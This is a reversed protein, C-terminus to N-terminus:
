NSGQRYPRLARFSALLNESLTAMSTNGTARALVLAQEAKAIAEAFRGTEAYAAAATSLVTPSQEAGATALTREALRVAEKGNRVAADPYTALLWALDSMIFPSDSAISITEQLAPSGNESDALGIVAALLKARPNEWGPRLIMAYAFQNAATQFDQRRGAAVGLAYHAQPSFPIVILANRAADTMEQDRQLSILESLLLACAVANEPGFDLARRASQIAPEVEGQRSLVISLQLHAASDRPALEVARKAETLAAPEDKADGCILSLCRHTDANEPDAEVARMAESKANELDRRFRLWTAKYVHLPASDRVWMSSFSNAAWLFMAVGLLLQLRPWRGALASWGLSAFCCLPILASLGYVSRAQGSSPIKLTMFVIGGLVLASFGLLVFWPLSPRQVYDHLAIVLGVVILLTPVIALAYGGTVLNYNWPTRSVLDSVGGWLGDGWLTSYLGDWLGALSSFFPHILARGFRGYDVVTRYGPDQWWLFGSAPDWNAVWPTGYRRWVRLYHWGCVILCSASVTALKGLRMGASSRERFLKLALVLVLIPILLIATAKTLLAAGLFLGLLACQSAAAKEARLLRLAVYLTAAMLAAALTENTLYHSMYLQMPLFGALVLGVMQPGSQRPFLLRLTLFVLVLHALGFLTTLLRLLVVGSFDAPSLRLLSLAGASLIYYLPPQYMEFGENPLPLARRDQVYKIYALHDQADFGTSFPLQRANNSFLAVWFVIIVVLLAVPPWQGTQKGSTQAWTRWWGAGALILAGLGALALWWRWSDRLAGAMGEGGFALNGPGPFRPTSAAAAPLWRSGVYSAEWAGDTRLTIGEASLVLWLAPPGTNNFVRAEITNLGSHVIDSIDSTSLDKWNASAPLDVAMGNIKLEIRRAARFMLRVTHPANEVKFTRRFVTDLYVVPHTGTDVATPFVIWDARQDGPLFNIREDRRCVWTFAAFALATAAAILTAKHWSKL